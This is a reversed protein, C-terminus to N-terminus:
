STKDVLNVLLVNEQFQYNQQQEIHKNYCIEFLQIELYCPNLLLSNM